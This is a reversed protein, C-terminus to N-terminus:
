QPAIPNATDRFSRPVPEIRLGACHTLSRANSCSHRLNCSHCLSCSCSLDSGQGLFEMHKLAAVFSLFVFCFLCFIWQAAQGGIDGGLSEWRSERHGHPSVKLHCRTLNWCSPAMDKTTVIGGRHPPREEM